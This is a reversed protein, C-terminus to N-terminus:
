RRKRGDRRGQLAIMAGAGGITLIGALAPGDPFHDFALWGVLMAWMLQVYLIPSLTSAPADRFARILLFHGAGGNIGLSAILLADTVDPLPGSWIWPLLLTMGATGVLATYFLMTVPSETATLQRTLIQYIAYCVASALALLVGEAVLGNGPRVILLVGAFGVLVAAWRLAGIREGLIPRALLTVLLPATFVIANTEALPMRALAAMTLFTVALLCLARLVQRAPRDTSVLRGGMSPGLLAAMLVFHVLYRGWVLMPVPYTRSLHKATADLLVFLFLAGLLTAISRLTAPASAPM